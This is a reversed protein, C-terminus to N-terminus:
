RRTPLQTLLGTLFQVSREILMIHYEDMAMEGEDCMEECIMLIFRSFFSNIFEQKKKDEKNNEVKKMRKESSKWSKEIQEHQNRVSALTFPLTNQLIQIQLFPLVLSRIEPIDM